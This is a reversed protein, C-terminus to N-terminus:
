HFTGCTPCAIQAELWPKIRAKGREVQSISDPKKHKKEIEGYIDKLEKDSLSNSFSYDCNELVLIDEWNWEDKNIPKIEKLEGVYISDGFATPGFQILDGIEAHKIKKSSWEFEVRSDDIAEDIQVFNKQFTFDSVVAYKKYCNELNVAETNDGIMIVKEEDMNKDEDITSVIFTRYLWDGSPSSFFEYVEDGKKIGEQTCLCIIVKKFLKCLMQDGTNEDIFTKGNWDKAKMILGSQTSVTDGNKIEQIKDPLPKVYYNM